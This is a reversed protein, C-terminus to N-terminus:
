QSVMKNLVEEDEVAALEESTLKGASSKSEMGSFTLSVQKLSM